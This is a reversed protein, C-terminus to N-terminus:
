GLPTDPCSVGSLKTQYASLEGGPCNAGSLEGRIKLCSTGLPTALIKGYTRVTKWRM